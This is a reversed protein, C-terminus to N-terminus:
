RFAAAMQGGRQKADIVAAKTANTIQPIMKAVEQRVMAADSGTVTINNQVTIGGSGAMAGSTQNANLVTGSHRPIVIEPGQEGVLYPKGSMISGGSARGGGTLRGAQANTFGGGGGFASTIGGVLKQVVLVRFLEEIIAAAMSKFAEGVTKTGKVMDMFGGELTSNVTEVVSQREKEAETLKVTLSIEEKLRASRGGGGGSGGGTTAMRSPDFPSVTGYEGKIKEMEAAIPNYNPDRPDLVVAKKSGLGMSMLKSALGVSIGLQEALQSASNTAASFDISKSAEAADLAREAVIAIFNAGFELSKAVADTAAKEERYANAREEARLRAANELKQEYQIADIAAQNKEVAAQLIKEEAEAQQKLAAGRANGGAYELNNLREQLTAREELLRNLTNQVIQEEQTQIGTTEMQRQLRLEEVKSILTDYAQAQKDIKKSADESEKGSNFFAMAVMSLLPILITLGAFATSLSISFAAVGIRANQLAPPLLYLLGALQTAQQSFAVLPNTGGQVQVIFDSVQYGTQQAAVGFSNMGSASQNVHQSFRNGAQAVGNQFSQYELNLSEVAAEHQKTSTVGLMHARSLEALSKEYLNSSAYVQDYKMRLRDIEASMANGGAGQSVASPGGVGLQRNFADQNARATKVAQAEQKRLEQTFASASQEASKYATTIKMNDNILNRLALSTAKIYQEDRQSQKAARAFAQVFVSASKSASNFSNGLELLEQKTSKVQSSDVTINIDAM